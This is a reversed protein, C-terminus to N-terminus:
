APVERKPVPIRATVITGEGLTSRVDVTGGFPLVRERMSALGFARQPDGRMADADFGAGDDVVTVTVDHLGAAVTVTLQQAAAHKMTNTVAEQIVRYLVTEVDPPLRAQYRNPWELVTAIGTAAEADSLQKELAAALGVEALIPPRTEHVIRRLDHLSDAVIGRISALNARSDESVTSEELVRLRLLISTLSQGLGDHLDRAIRAREDEQASLLRGLLLGRADHMRTLPVLFVWWTIPALILALLAADILGTIVPSADTPVLWPLMLMVVAEIVFAVILFFLLVRPAAAPSSTRASLAQALLRM